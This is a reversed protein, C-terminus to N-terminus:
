KFCRFMKCKKKCKKIEADLAEQHAQILVFLNTEQAVASQCYRHITVWPFLRHEIDGPSYTLRCCAFQMTLGRRSNWSDVHAQSKQCFGGYCELAMPSHVCWTSQPVTIQYPTLKFSLGNSLGTIPCQFSLSDGQKSLSGKFWSQRRQGSSLRCGSLSLCM